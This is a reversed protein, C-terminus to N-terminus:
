PEQMIRLYTGEFNEAPAPAPSLLLDGEPGILFYAPYSMIEYDDIVDPQNSFHLFNWPYNNNKVLERMSEFSDDVLITLIQLEKGQLRQSLVKLYEYEKICYYSFSNCFNLYVYGGRFDSLRVENSDSDFLIFDPPKFGPLLRRYEKMIDDVIGQIHPNVSNERASDLVQIVSSPQHRGDYLGDYLAKVLVLERLTDNTLEGDRELMEMLMSYDRDRNVVVSIQSRPHERAFQVFYDQFVENFLEMYAPNFFRVRYEHFYDQIISRSSMQAGYHNLLGTRYKLYDMFFGNGSSDFTEELEKVIRGVEERDTRNGYANAVTKYYYPYFSDNFARVLFNLDEIEGAAGTGSVTEATLHVSIERFYPNAEDSLTKEQRPPLKLEYHVGPEAYFFCNYIGLRMFVLRIEELTFRCAFSGSDGVQCAGMEEETFSVMNTYSYFALTEGSYEPANGTISVETSAMLPVTNLVSVLFVSFWRPIRSM